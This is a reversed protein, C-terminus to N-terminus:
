ENKILDFKFLFVYSDLTVEIEVIDGKYDDMVMFGRIVDNDDMTNRKLYHSLYEEAYRYMDDKAGTYVKTTTTIESKNEGSTGSKVLTETKVEEKNDPGFWYINKNCKVKYEEFSFLKIEVRKNKKYGYTKFSSPNLNYNGGTNNQIVFNLIIESGSLAFEKAQKKAHILVNFEKTSYEKCCVGDKFTVIPSDYKKQGYGYNLISLLLTLLLIKKM